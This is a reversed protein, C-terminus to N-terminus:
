GQTTERAKWNLYAARAIGIYDVGEHKLFRQDEGARM